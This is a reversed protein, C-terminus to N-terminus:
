KVNQQLYKMGFECQLCRNLDCYNKKLELLAQSEMASVAIGPKLATFGSIVSNKEAPIKESLELDTEVSRGLYSSYAFRFPIIINILILDIFAKTTRKKRPLHEKGFNYHSKWYDKLEVEFIGLLEEVGSANIVKEVISGTDSYIKALQALRIVPFNDPRLRFFKPKIVGDNTLRYKYQLYKFEKKLKQYYIDEHEEELLGAQGFLIAQLKLNELQNRRFITFNFSQSISLFSDGNVNLGFGKALLQFLVAEWDNESKQLLESILLSKQEMREFYLRELWHLTEFNDFQAFSNECNIWRPERALLLEYKELIELHVIHKLELTPIVSNNTRYIEMDHQWVVHLIVNDYSEDSEHKHAYWDSSKLHIEVNGAWLQGGIRIRSNFFDPGSLRNHYGADEVVIEEGATTVANTFNYKQFKWIYHLFDEQM